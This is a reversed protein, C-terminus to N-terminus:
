YFFILLFNITNIVLTSPLIDFRTELIYLLYNINTEYKDRSKM